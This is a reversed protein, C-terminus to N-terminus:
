KSTRNEHPLKRLLPMEFTDRISQSCKDITTDILGKDFTTFAHHTNTKEVADICAEIILEAFKELTAGGVEPYHSGGAQLAIENLIKKNM